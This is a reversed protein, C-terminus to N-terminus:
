AYRYTIMLPIFGSSTDATAISLFGMSNAVIPKNPKDASMPMRKIMVAGGPSAHCIRAVVVSSANKLKNVIFLMKRRSLLPMILTRALRAMSEFTTHVTSQNMSIHFMSPPPAETMHFIIQIDVLKDIQRVRVPLKMSIFCALAAIFVSRIVAIPDAHNKNIYMVGAIISLASQSYMESVHCSIATTLMSNAKLVM